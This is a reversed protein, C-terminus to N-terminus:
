HGASPPDMATTQQDAIQSSSILTEKVRRQIHHLVGYALVFGMTPELLKVAAIGTFILLFNWWGVIKREPSNSNIFMAMKSVWVFICIPVLTFLIALIPKIPYEPHHSQLVKHLKYVCYIFYFLGAYVNLIIVDVLPNDGSTFEDRTLTKVAYIEISLCLGAIGYGIWIRPFKTKRKNKNKM